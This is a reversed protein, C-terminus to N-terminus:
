EFFTDPAKDFAVAKPYDQLKESRLDWVSESSAGLRRRAWWEARNRTWADRRQEEHLGKVSLCFKWDTYKGSCHAMEGFRYLSRFQRGVTNCSILDDFLSMCSPISDPTPHLLRLRQEEQRVAEKFQPTDEAVM